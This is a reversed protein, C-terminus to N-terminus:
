LALVRGRKLTLSVGHVLPQAAQLAINRLEIQQPM